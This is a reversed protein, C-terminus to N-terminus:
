LHLDGDSICLCASLAYLKVLGPATVNFTELANEQMTIQQLFPYTTPPEFTKLNNRNLDLQELRTMAILDM